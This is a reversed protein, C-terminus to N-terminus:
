KKIKAQELLVDLTKESRMESRLNELGNRKELRERLEEPKMRYSQAMTEVRRDVAEQTVEVKEEEAIRALIFSLKVREQSTATAAQVISDRQAEIQERTAGEMQSQRVMNQVAVKTEQEVVSAPLDFKTKALLYKAIENKLRRTEEAEARAELDKRVKERLAEESDVEFRKLFEEDMDPKIRERIGKVTVHYVAKKGAAAQVHYDRPFTVEIDKEEGISLGQLATAFGPLLEPEGAVTWFDKGEGLGSCDTALEGAPRGECVGSYDIMVMDDARVPRGSVDEYRAYANLLREMGEDVQAETVETSQRKLSIRKYRPMKFEPAVDVTVDFRAGQDRDLDVDSVQIVSVPTISAQELAQRYLRPVIREKSDEVISKKYRQEVVDEPAKGQRFGKVRAKSAYLKVVSQYDDRVAEPPTEIHLVKRCPGADEVQVKM